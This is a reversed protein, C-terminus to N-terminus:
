VALAIESKRTNMAQLSLDYGELYTMVGGRQVAKVVAGALERIIDKRSWLALHEGSAQAMAQSLKVAWPALGGRTEVVFSLQEFHRALM